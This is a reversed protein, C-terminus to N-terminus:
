SQLTLTKKVTVMDDNRVHLPIHSSHITYRRKQQLFFITMRVGYHVIQWHSPFSSTDVALMKM